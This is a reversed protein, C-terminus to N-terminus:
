GIWDLVNSGDLGFWSVSQKFFVRDNHLLWYTMWQEVSGEKEYLLATLETLSLAAGVTGASGGGGGDDAAIAWAIEVLSADAGQAAAAFRELDSDSYGSGPL